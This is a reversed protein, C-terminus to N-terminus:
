LTEAHGPVVWPDLPHAKPRTRSAGMKHDHSDRHGAAARRPALRASTQACSRNDGNRGHRSEMELLWEPQPTAGQVRLWPSRTPSQPPHSRPPADAHLVVGADVHEDWTM